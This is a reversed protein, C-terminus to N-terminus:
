AAEQLVLFETKLTALRWAKPLLDNMDRYGRRPPAPSQHERQCSKNSGDSVKTRFCNLVGELHALLMAVVNRMPKLRQWRLHDIWTQLYRFM